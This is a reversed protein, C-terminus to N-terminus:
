DMKKFYVLAAIIFLVPVLLFIPVLMYLTAFLTLQVLTSIIYLYVGWRKMKWLGVMSIFQTVIVAFLCFAFLPSSVFGYNRFFISYISLGCGLFGLMCFFTMLPPRKNLHVVKVEEDYYNEQGM